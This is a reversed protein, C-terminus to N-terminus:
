PYRRGKWEASRRLALVYVPLAAPATVPVLAAEWYSGRGTKANVLLREVLGLVAAARWARSEPWRFWPLTYAILHWAASAMLVADSNGHAERMSKGFGRVASTYSHYMRAQVLEGGLALGLKLGQQRSLRAVALDEVIRDAVSAHGGIRTYADRSIALFQGNAVAAAPVAADLLQHPLFALLNEDILPVLVREGIRDAIQRPFVSFLDARQRAMQCWVADLAGARLTVDADCYVLLDGTAERALQHCAWNKGVWGDPKATGPIIRLRKDNFTAVVDATGDTSGDDLVLVEDAPQALLSPLTHPLRTAEDRAPVLISTRPRDPARDGHRLTPFSVQNAVLGAAKVIHFALTLNALVAM